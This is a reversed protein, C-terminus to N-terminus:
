YRNWLGININLWCERGTPAIFGFM